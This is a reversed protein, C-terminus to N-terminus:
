RDQGEIIIAALLEDTSSCYVYHVDDHDHGPSAHQEATYFGVLWNDDGGEDTIVIVSGDHRTHQIGNLPFRGYDYSTWGLELIRLPGHLLQRMAATPDSGTM